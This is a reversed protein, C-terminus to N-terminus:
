FFSPARPSKFQVESLNLAAAYAGFGVFQARCLLVSFSIESMPRRDTIKAPMTAANM